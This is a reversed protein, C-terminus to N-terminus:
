VERLYGWSHLKDSDEYWRDGIDIRYYMNPIMINKIRHRMQAQAQKMTKGSAAVVLIV